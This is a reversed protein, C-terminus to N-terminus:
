YLIGNEVPFFSGHFSGLLYMPNPSLIKVNKYSKYFMKCKNNKSFMSNLVIFM